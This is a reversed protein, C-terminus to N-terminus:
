AFAVAVSLAAGFVAAICCISARVRIEMLDAHPAFHVCRRPAARRVIERANPATRRSIKQMAPEKRRKHPTM